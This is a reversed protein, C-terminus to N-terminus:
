HIEGWNSGIPCEAKIKVRLKFHKETDEAMIKLIKEKVMEALAEPAEFLLEDHVQALMKVTPYVACIERAARLMVWKMMGGGSGQVINNIAVREAASRVKKDYHLLEPIRRKRGDITKLWCGIRRAYALAKEKWRRATSFTEWYGDIFKKSDEQSPREMGTAEISDAFKNPGMGYVSGFNLTKAVKRNVGQKDAVMQHPDGDNAFVEVLAPEQTFHAFIRMELASWDPDLLKYGTTAEFAERIRHGEEGRAPINQLNPESSSARGPKTGVQNFSGHLRGNLAKELFVNIYTGMLKDFKKYRRLAKVAGTTDKPEMKQLAFDDTSDGGSKTKGQKPLKLKKFLFDSLQKPSNPNVGGSLRDWEEKAKDMEAQFERRLVEVKAMNLPIGNNEMDKFVYVLPMEIEFFHKELDIGMQENKERALEYNLVPWLELTMRTDRAAYEALEQPYLAFVDHVTIDSLNKRVVKRRLEKKKGKPLASNYADVEERMLRNLEDKARKLLDSFSPLDSPYGLRIKAQEKLGLPMNEDVLHAAIMTDIINTPRIGYRGVFHLDYKINHGVWTKSKDTDVVHKLRVLGDALANGTIYWEHKGDVATAISFGHLQDRMYDLGTTECDLAVLDSGQIHYFVEDLHQPDTILLPM